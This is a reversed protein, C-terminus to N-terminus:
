FAFKEGLRTRSMFDEEEFFNEHPLNPLAQADRLLYRSNTEDNKFGLKVKLKVDLYHLPKKPIYVWEGIM